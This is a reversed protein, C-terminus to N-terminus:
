LKDKIINPFGKIFVKQYKEIILDISYKEETDEMIKERNFNKIDINEIATAFAEIDGHPVIIGNKKDEIIENVGGISNFSIVPLGFLNAELLVNPFGEYESTLLLIDAERLYSYPNKQYGLFAVRDYINLQHALSELEDRKVGDGIITLSYRSDLKSFARLLLDQRKEYRLQGIHILRISNNFPYEIQEASLRKLGEIDIPNNIVVSKEKPFTFNDILDRQMYLSQCIVRNYNKYVRKYLWKYLLPSKEQSNNLTLISAQRAIFITKPLFLKIIPIFISLYLNLNGIGSFIIDPKLIYIKKLLLPIGQLTSKSNLNYVKIDEKLNDMLSGGDQFILLSLNFIERDLYNMINLLVREAGGSDLKPIIFLINKM